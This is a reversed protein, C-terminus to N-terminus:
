FRASFRKNKCIFYTLIRSIKDANKIFVMIGSASTPYSIIIALQYGVCMRPVITLHDSIAFWDSQGLWCSWQTHIYVLVKKDKLIQLKSKNSYNARNHYHPHHNRALQDKRKRDGEKLLHFCKLWINQDQYRLPSIRKAHHSDFVFELLFRQRIAMSLNKRAYLVQLWGPFPFFSMAPKCFKIIHDCIIKKFTWKFHILSRTTKDTYHDATNGQDHTYM